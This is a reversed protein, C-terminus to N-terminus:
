HPRDDDHDHDRMRDGDHRAADNYGDRFGDRYADRLRHDVPPHRFEHHRDPDASRRDRMDEMAARMGDDHGQRRADHDRDDEDAGVMARAHLAPLPQAQVTGFSGFSGLAFPLALITASAIQRTRM